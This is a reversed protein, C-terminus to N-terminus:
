SKDAWSNLNSQWDMRILPVKARFSEVAEKVVREVEGIKSPHVACQIEDHVNLPQVLWEHIGGPQIDWIKRQVDKTIEAGSAQIEHNKFSRMNAAQIAFAAGYLASQSAGFASQVRDRRTVKMKADKWAKPPDCALTFLAKCIMNELTYYRRFGFMSEAYEVPEHWEVKSGIGNPQRMSCCKNNVTAQYIGVQKYRQGFMQLGIIADEMSIGVRSNLTAAEGGYLTAFFGRKSKDYYDNGTGASALIQNYTVKPFLFTGFIAHIKASETGKGGCPPCQGKGDCIKCILGSGKCKPCKDDKGCDCFGPCDHEPAVKKGDCRHCTRKSKVDAELEPDGYRAIALTVEFASFDGGCLKLGGFALPFKGRVEKTRKVGLPNVGDGKASGGREIGKASGGGAMRGSLSGIISSSAHFRGALIIKEYFDVEYNCQRAELIEQARKSAEPLTLPQRCDGCIDGGEATFKNCPICERWKQMKELVPKKTSGEMVLREMPSLAQEIYKRSAAPSTPIKFYSYGPRDPVSPLLVQDGTPIIKRNRTKTVDRLQELGEIDAAYGRWRNAAVMCALESDNDGLAPSAFYPYLKQLYVVDLEAYERARPHYHWHMIHRHILDPWSNKWDQPSGIALAFPAYGLEEPYEKIEVDVFKLVSDPELGFADTAIAKLASTAAFKLVVDKFDRSIKGDADEVDYVQWARDFSKKKGFFIKKLKVRKELEDALAYSLTTPVRRIRIDGRDMVAQYPGKRAHLMLDCAKMPKCCPGDRGKPENLAYETICDELILSWDPMLLLTTYMQCVHFWDFVLNFGVVGGPHNVLKELEEIAQGVTLKWLSILKVEGKIGEAYQLLVIPGHLGCTETDFFIPEVLKGQNAKVFGPGRHVNDPLERLHNGFRSQNAFLQRGYVLHLLKKCILAPHFEDHM